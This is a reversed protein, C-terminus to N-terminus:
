EDLPDPGLMALFETFSDAIHHYLTAEEPDYKDFGFDDIVPVLKPPTNHDRIYIKGYNKTRLDMVFMHSGSDFAIKLLQRRVEKSFGGLRQVSISESENDVLGLMTHIATSNWSEVRIYSDNPAYGGNHKLLFARYEHPLVIGRKLAFDDLAAESTPEFPERFIM